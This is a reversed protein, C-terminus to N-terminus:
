DIGFVTLGPALVRAYIKTFPVAVRGGDSRLQYRNAGPELARWCSAPSGGSSMDGEPSGLLPGLGMGPAGRESRALATRLTMGGTRWM